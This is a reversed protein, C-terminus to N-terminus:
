QTIDMNARVLQIFLVLLYCKKFSSFESNKKQIFLAQFGNHQWPFTVTSTDHFKTIVTVVTCLELESCFFDELYEMKKIKLWKIDVIHRGLDDLKCLDFDQIVRCGLISDFYFSVGTKM